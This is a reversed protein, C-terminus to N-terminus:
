IVSIFFYQEKLKIVPRFNLCENIFSSFNICDEPSVHRSYNEPYEYAEFFVNPLMTNGDQAEDILFLNNPYEFSIGTDVNQYNVFKNSIVIMEDVDDVGPVPMCLSPNNDSVMVQKDGVQVGIGVGIILAVLSVSIVVLFLALHNSISKM